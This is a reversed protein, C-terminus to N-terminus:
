IATCAVTFTVHGTQGGAVTVNQTAADVTCNAAVDSITVEHAGADVALTAVDNVGIIPADAGDVALFYGNPDLNEGTTQTRVQIFGTHECVVTFSATVVDGAVVTVTVPNETTVDCPADVDTLEVTHDGPLMGELDLEGGEPIPRANGADIRADFGDPDQPNSAPNVRVHLSGAGNGTSDDGCAVLFALCLATLAFRPHSM